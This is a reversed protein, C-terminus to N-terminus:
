PHKTEQSWLRSGNKSSFSTTKANYNSLFNLYLVITKYIYPEMTKIPKLNLIRPQLYNRSFQKIFTFRFYSHLLSNPAHIVICEIDITSNKTHAVLTSQAKFSPFHIIPIIGQKSKTKQKLIYPYLCWTM